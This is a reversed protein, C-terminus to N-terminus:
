TAEIEVSLSMPYERGIEMLGDKYASILLKATETSEGSWIMVALGSEEQYSFNKLGGHKELAIGLTHTLASIGACVIDQGGKSYGAHGGVVVSYSDIKVTVM